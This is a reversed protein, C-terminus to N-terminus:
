EPAKMQLAPLNMVWGFSGQLDFAPFFSNERCKAGIRLFYM